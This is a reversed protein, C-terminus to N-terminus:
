LTGIEITQSYEKTEGPEAKQAARKSFLSYDSEASDPAGYWPQICVYDASGPQAWFAVVPAGNLYVRSYRGTPLEEIQIYDSAVNGLMFSNPFQEHDLTLVDEGNLFPVEEGTLNGNGNHRLHVANEKKEFRLVYDSATYKSDFPCMYGTHIGISFPMKSEGTNTIRATWTVRNDSIRYETEMEFSWPYQKLTNEDARIVFVLHDDAQEKLQHVVTKAFGHPAGEYTIGDEIFKGDRLCGIYPFLLPSRENWVKEGQWLRPRGGDKKDFINWLEAGQDNVEVKLFDNEMSYIM